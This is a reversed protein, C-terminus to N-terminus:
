WNQPFYYKMMKEHPSNAKPAYKYTFMARKPLSILISDVRGNTKLGFTTGRDHLLNFEIYRGHRHLQFEVDEETYLEDKRKEVIPFYSEIFHNSLNKVMNLDNTLDGSNFHDFFIGGIGRMEGGRHHNVFYEDCVKKMSDYCQYPGCAKKWVHHFHHFDEEIPYYPTLDAGGGFWFQNGREIFRFNAHVTPVKPNKPHIILSIGCAFMTSGEGNFKDSFTPDVAGFIKSINVGANEIVEGEFARTRGGGGKNNEFDSREWIDEVLKIKPDVKFLANTIEDQLKSVHQYFDEKKLDLDQM